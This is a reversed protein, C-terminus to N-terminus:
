LFILFPSQRILDSSSITQCFILLCIHNQIKTHCHSKQPSSTPLQVDISLNYSFSSFPLTMFPLTMLTSVFFHMM